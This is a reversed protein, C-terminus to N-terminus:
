TDMILDTGSDNISEMIVEYDAEKKVLSIDSSNFDEIEKSEITVEIVCQADEIIDEPNLAM